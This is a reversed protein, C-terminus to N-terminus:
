FKLSIKGYIAAGPLMPLTNVWGRGFEPYFYPSSNLLNQGFVTLEIPISIPLKYSLNISLLDIASAEPNLKAGNNEKPKGFYTNYIGVTLGFSTKYFAGIKGMFNPIYVPVTEKDANNQITASGTIFITSSITVKGEFEFGNMHLEGQNVYTFVNSTDSLPARTISNSYASNFYTISGEAKKSSFFLQVDLTSIKEPTLNPNGVIAPNELLQEIPWPSRFASAYLTKLGFNDTINLIAGLRPVFDVDGVDPKNLQAGAILKLIKFPRYDAQIYTSLHIQNYTVPIGDGPATNNKNRSDFVGGVVLNLNKLPEGNITLEALYDASEHHDVPTQAEDGIKLDSSNSSANLSAKWSDSFEHTYGLNVFMRSFKNKGAYTAYPLIGLIDQNDNAYFGFLSFGKYSIDTSLGFNQRGYKKNVQLDPITPAPHVTIANYEWGDINDIKVGVKAKFNDKSYSGNLAGGITGFSGATFTGGVSNKTDTNKTIINVVGAFANSGYLVSGPGRIIEIREIIEVPLGLYITSNVGGLVGDRIPRGDILILVHNDYLTRLDGRMATINNPFLHSSIRQISTVRELIDGLNNAGFYKIEEKTIISIIGPADTIKEAKKSVTTVHMNLLDEISMEAIDTSGLVYMHVDIIDYLGISASASEMDPHTFTLTLISDPVSISFYGEENTTAAISLGKPNITVGAIPKGDIDTIHGELNRFNQASLPLFTMFIVSLLIVARLQTKM